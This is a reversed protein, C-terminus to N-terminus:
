NDKILESVKSITEEFCKHNVLLNKGKGYLFVENSNTPGFLCIFKKELAIAIHVGLSDLTILTETSDIWNIYQGLDTFGEQWKIEHEAELKSELQEWFSLPLEKEPFKKGVKWNLGIGQGDKKSDRFVYKEENWKLNLFNCLKEQYSLDNRQSISKLLPLSGHNIGGLNLELLKENKELNIIKSYQGLDISDFSDWSLAKIPTEDFFTLASSDTVWHIESDSFSNALFTTRLVDGLSCIGRDEFECFTECFGTKIILIKNM